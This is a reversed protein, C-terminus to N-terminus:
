RGIGRWGTGFSPRKAITVFTPPPIRHVRIREQRVACIASPSTTHDQRGSAPTLNKLLLSRLPSPPLLGTVPSLVFSVTLVMACPLGPTGTFRHDVVTHKRGKACPAIPAAPVRNERRGGQSREAGERNSPLRKWFGPAHHQPITSKHEHKMACSKRASPYSKDGPFVPKWRADLAPGSKGIRAGPPQM